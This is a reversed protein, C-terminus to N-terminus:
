FEGAHLHQADGTKHKLMEGTRAQWTAYLDSIEGIFEDLESESITGQTYLATHRDSQSDDSKDFDQAWPLAIVVEAKGRRAILCWFWAYEDSTTYREIQIPSSGKRVMETLVGGSFSLSQGGYLTEHLRELSEPFFPGRYDELHADTVKENSM